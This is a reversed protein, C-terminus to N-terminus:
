LTRRGIWAVFDRSPQGAQAVPRQQQGAEGATQTARFEHREVALIGAKRRPPQHQANALGFAVLFPFPRLDPDSTAAPRM